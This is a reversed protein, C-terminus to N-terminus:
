EVASRGEPGFAQDVWIKREPALGLRAAVGANVELAADVPEIAPLSDLSLPTTGAVVNAVTGDARIFLIDLPILTNKMWMSTRRAEPYVFLMGQDPALDTVYMLGRARQEQNLALYVGLRHCASRGEVTIVAQGFLAGLRAIGQSRAPTLLICLLLFLPWHRLVAKM